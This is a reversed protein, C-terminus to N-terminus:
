ASVESVLLNMRTAIRLADGRTSCDLKRYLSRLQSKITNPSVHFTSAMAATSHHDLLANLVRLEGATLVPREDMEFHALGGVAVDFEAVAEASLRDRVRDVLQRPMITVLRRIEPRRVVRHIQVATERDLDDIRALELWGSLLVCEARQAPGLAQDRALLGLHSAANDLKGDRLSLRVTALRTLVGADSFEEAVRRASALDGTEVMATISSAGVVDFAFSGEHVPHSDRALRITELADEPQQRSLLARTRVLLVFPWTLDLSDYPALEGLAEDLNEAMRDVAIFAAATHETSISASVHAPTPPPLARAEALTREADGMAGRLAHALAVRGLVVREADAQASLKGLQRATALELLARRSDGAALFTAGIQHHFYWLPGDLRDRSEIRVNRIRDELRKAYLLAAEIDGSTRFAIMQTLIVFDVEEPRMSRAHETYMAPKFSRTTRALVATMPHMLRLVPYHELVSSPLLAIASIVQETHSMLLPWINFMAVRAITDSDGSEVARRLDDKAKDPDNLNM